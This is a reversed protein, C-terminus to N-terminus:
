TFAVCEQDVLDMLWARPHGAAHRGERQDSRPGGMEESTRGPPLTGCDLHRAAQGVREAPDEVEVVVVAAEHQDGRERTTETRHEAHREGSGDEAQFHLRDSSHAVLREDRREGRGDDAVEDDVSEAVVVSRERLEGDVEVGCEKAFDRHRSEEETQGARDNTSSVWAMWFTMARRTAHGGSRRTM